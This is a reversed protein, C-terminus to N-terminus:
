RITIGSNSGKFCSGPLAELVATKNQPDTINIRFHKQAKNATYKFTKAKKVGKIKVKVSVSKLGILGGNEDLQLAGKKLKAKISVSEAEALRIPVIDYTFETDKISENLKDILASLAKKDAGKIKAKRVAKSNLKVKLKFYGKTGANKDKSISLSFSFLKSVDTGEKMKGKLAEELGSLNLKVIDEGGSFAELQAKTIKKGTWSVAEPYVINLSISVPQGNISESITATHKETLVTTPDPLKPIVTEALSIETKGEADKYLKKCESCEWYEINGEAEETAALAAHHIMVHKHAPVEPEPIVAAETINVTVGTPQSALTYNAADAGALKVGTVNVAKGEGVSDDAMTGTAESVDVTVTDGAIVGSVTGANLAVSLKDKVYERNVATVTATVNKPSIKAKAVAPMELVYNARADGGAGAGLSYDVFIVDKATGANKDTFRYSGPVLTLKTKDADLVGDIGIVNSLEADTTGDYVKDKVNINDLRIPRPAVTLTKRGIGTYSASDFNVRIVTQGAKKVSVKGDADVVAVDENNSSWSVTVPAEETETQYSLTFDEDGYYVSADGVIIVETVDKDTLTVIVNASVPAYGESRISVPLTIVDGSSAAVAAVTASVAGTISGVTFGSVTTNVSPDGHEDVVTATGAVFRIEGADEPLVDTFAASITTANFKQMLQIDAVAPATKTGSVARIYHIGNGDGNYVADDQLEADTGDPDDSMRIISGDLTTDELLNPNDQENSALSIEGGTVQTPVGLAYCYGIQPHETGDNYNPHSDGSMNCEVNVAGGTVSLDGNPSNTGIGRVFQDRGNVTVNLEGGSVELSRVCEIGYTTGWSSGSCNMTIDLQGDAIMAEAGDKLPLYLGGNKSNVTEAGIATLKIRANCGEEMIFDGDCWMAYTWIGAAGAGTSACKEATAEIVANSGSKVRFGYAYIGYTKANAGHATAYIEGGEVTLNSEIATSANFAATGKSGDYAGSEATLVAGAGVILGSRIGVAKADSARDGIYAGSIAEVMCNSIYPTPAGDTAVACIGYSTGKDYRHEGEVLTGGVATVKGGTVNMYGAATKTLDSLLIGHTYVYLGSSDNTVTGGAANLEGGSMTLETTCLAVDNGTKGSNKVNGGTVNVHGAKQDYGSVAYIGGSFVGYSITVNKESVSGGGAEVTTTNGSVSLEDTMIGFSYSYSEGGVALLSAGNKIEITDSCYIGASRLGKSANQNVTSTASGGYAKVKNSSVTLNDALIGASLADFGKVNGGVGSVTGATFTLTGAKIGASEPVVSIAGATDVSAGNASVTVRNAPLGLAFSGAYIGASKQTATGTCKATLKGPMIQPKGVESTKEYNLMTLDGGVYIGYVEDDAAKNEVTILAGGLQIKLDGDAYICANKGDINSGEKAYSDLLLLTNTQKYYTAKHNDDVNIEVPLLSSLDVRKGYVWLKTLPTIAKVERLGDIDKTISNDKGFVSVLISVPIDSIVMIVCMLIAFIPRWRCMKGFIRYNRSNDSM